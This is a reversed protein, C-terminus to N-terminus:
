IKICNGQVVVAGIDGHRVRIGIRDGAEVQAPYRVVEKNDLRFTISYGRELTTMPSLAELRDELGKLSNQFISLQHQSFRVLYRELDDLRQQYQNIRDSPRVLAPSTLCRSLRAENERMLGKIGARLRRSLSEVQNKLEEKGAIVMEAAASPTPARLDAALDAITFDIEHGIGSIIPINSAYIARAVKEDNFAWLDEMSGGGRALIIVDVKGWQNMQRIAEVIQPPADAGQVLVPYIFVEIGEFRRKLVKLIDRIAAGTPSTIVGIREPLGPLAKKHADDFLGEKALRKKLEEFALYLDGRGVEELHEVLLQYDGRAEYVTLAGCAIVKMGDKPVLRLALQRGRFMVARLQSGEDKLTFYLHGSRPKALNSIEGKIRLYPFDGELSRKIRATIESVTYIEKGYEFLFQEM